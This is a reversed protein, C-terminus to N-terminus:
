VYKNVSSDDNVEIPLKTGFEIHFSVMCFNYEIHVYINKM